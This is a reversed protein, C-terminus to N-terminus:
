LNQLLTLIPAMDEAGDVLIGGMGLKLPLAIDIDYRDGIAICEEPNAQLDEAAKLFSRDHPKSAGFTDLGVIVSFLDLVGLTGLTRQAIDTPNNTVVALGAYDKMARLTDRLAPDPSLFHEPNILESRWRISEEIPIGFAVMTNGLSLKEGQHSQAWHRRYEDIQANMEEYSLGRLEALRQILVVNQHEGYAHNTYLTGDMDFILGRVRRPIHYLKM